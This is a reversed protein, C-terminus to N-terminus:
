KLMKKGDESQANLGLITFNKDIIEKVEKKTLVKTELLQCEENDESIYVLVHLDGESAQILQKYTGHKFDPLQSRDCKLKKFLADM